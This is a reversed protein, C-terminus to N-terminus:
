IDTNVCSPAVQNTALLAYVHTQYFSCCPKKKASTVTFRPVFVHLGSKSQLMVSLRISPSTARKVYERILTFREQFLNLKHVNNFTTAFFLVIGKLRQLKCCGSKHKIQPLNFTCCRKEVREASSYHLLVLQM